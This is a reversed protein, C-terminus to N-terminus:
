ANVLQVLRDATVRPLLTDLMSLPTNELQLLRGAILMGLLTVVM